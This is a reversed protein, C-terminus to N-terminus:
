RRLDRGHVAGCEGGVAGGGGAYEHRRVGGGDASEDAATPEGAQVAFQPFLDYAALEVTYTTFGGATGVAEVTGNITQPMLTEVTAPVVTPYPEVQTVHTTIAVMQGPVM